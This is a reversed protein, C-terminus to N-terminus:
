HLYVHPSFYWFGGWSRFLYGDSSRRAALLARCLVVGLSLGVTAMGTHFGARASLQKSRSATKLSHALLAPMFAGVAIGHLVAFVILGSINHVAIWVFALSALAFALLGLCIQLRRSDAMYHVIGLLLSGLVTGARHMSGLYFTGEQPLIARKVAFVELCMSPLM